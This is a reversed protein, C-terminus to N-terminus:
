FEDNFKLMHATNYSIRWGIFAYDSGIDIYHSSLKCFINLAVIFYSCNNAIRSFMMFTDSSKKGSRKATRAIYTQM